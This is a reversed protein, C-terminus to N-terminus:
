GEESSAHSHLGLEEWLAEGDEGWGGGAAAAPLSRGRQGERGGPHGERGGPHRKAGATRVRCNEAGRVQFNRPMRTVHGSLFM